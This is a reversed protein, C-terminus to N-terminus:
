HGALAELQTKNRCYGPTEEAGDRHADLWSRCGEPNNCATCNLVTARWSEPSFNGRELEEVLDVGLTDAMRGVLDAHRNLRTMWSM